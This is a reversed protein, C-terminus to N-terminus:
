DGAMARGIAEGGSWVMTAVFGDLQVVEIELVAQVAHGPLGGAPCSDTALDQAM